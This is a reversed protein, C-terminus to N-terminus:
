GLETIGHSTYDAALRDFRVNPTVIQMIKQRVPPLQQVYKRLKRPTAFTTDIRAAVLNRLNDM